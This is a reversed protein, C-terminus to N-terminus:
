YHRSVDRSLPVLFDPIDFNEMFDKVLWKIDDPIKGKLLSKLAAAVRDELEEDNSGWDGSEMEDEDPFEVGNILFKLKKYNKENAAQIINVMDERYKNRMVEIDDSSEDSSDSDDSSEGDNKIQVKITKQEPKQTYKVTKKQVPKQKAPTKQMSKIETNESIDKKYTQATKKTTPTTHKKTSKSRGRKEEDIPNDMVTIEGKTYTLFDLENTSPLATIVDDTHWMNVKSLYKLIRLRDQKKSFLEKKITPTKHKPINQTNLEGKTANFFIYYVNM